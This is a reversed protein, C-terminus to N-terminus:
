RQCQELTFVEVDVGPSFLTHTFPRPAIGAAAILNEELESAVASFLPYPQHYVRGTNLRGGRSANLLYREVLFFELDGPEPHPVSDGIKCCVHCMRGNSRRSSNYRVKGPEERVTMRAEHYPLSFFRRAVRCALHNTAELSFFWVGPDKGERHVYTRVNTEPFAHIGPLEPVGPLTVGEMRFAVLGVWAMENGSSDPYTDVTLGSPILVQIESPDAAFHLFLLSRWRQHMAARGGPRVRMSQYSDIKLM